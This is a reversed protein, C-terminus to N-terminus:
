SFDSTVRVQEFSSHTMQPGALMSALLKVLFRARWISRVHVKDLVTAFHNNQIFQKGGELGIPRADEYKTLHTSHQVNHLIVAQEPCVTRGTM